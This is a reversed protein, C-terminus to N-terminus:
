HLLATHRRMLRGLVNKQVPDMDVFQCGYGVGEQAHVVRALLQLRDNYRPSYINLVLLADTPPQRISSIFTGQESIDDTIGSVPELRGDLPLARVNAHFPRREDVRVMRAPPLPSAGGSAPASRGFDRRAGSEIDIEAVMMGSQDAM